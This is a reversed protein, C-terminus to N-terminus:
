SFLIEFAPALQVVLVVLASYSPSLSAKQMQDWPPRVEGKILAIESPSPFRVTIRQLFVPLYLFPFLKLCGKQFVKNYLPTSFSYFSSFKPNLSSPTNTHTHTNTSPLNQLQSNATLSSGTPFSLTVHLLSPNLLAILDKPLIGCGSCLPQSQFHLNFAQWRGLLLSFLASLTPLFASSAEVQRKQKRM